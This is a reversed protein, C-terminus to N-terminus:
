LHKLVAGTSVFEFCEEAHRARMAQWAALLDYDDADDSMGAECAVPKAQAIYLKTFQWKLSAETEFHTKLKNESVLKSYKEHLTRQSERATCMHRSEKAFDEFVYKLAPDVGEIYRKPDLFWRSPADSIPCPTATPYGACNTVSANASTPDFASENNLLLALMLCMM